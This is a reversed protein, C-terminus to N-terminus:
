DEFEDVLYAAVDNDTYLKSGYELGDVIEWGSPQTIWTATPTVAEAGATFSITGILSLTLIMTILMSIKRKM